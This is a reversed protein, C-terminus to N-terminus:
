EGDIGIVALPNIAFDAERPAAELDPYITAIEACVNRLALSDFRNVPVNERQHLPEGLVPVRQEM